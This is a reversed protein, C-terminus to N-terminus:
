DDFDSDNLINCYHLLEFIAVDIVSLMMLVSVLLVLRLITQIMVMSYGIYKQFRNVTMQKEESSSDNEKDCTNYVPSAVLICGICLLILARWRGASIKMDLLLVSFLATWLIKAQAFVAFEGAGIYDFNLFSLLNMVYYTLAVFGMKVSNKTLWVLKGLYQGEASSKETSSFIMFVCFLLKFLETFIIIEEAPVNEMRVAETRLVTYLVNCSCLSFLIQAKLVLSMTHPCSSVTSSTCPLILFKIIQERTTEFCLKNVCLVFAFKWVKLSSFLVCRFSIPFHFFVIIMVIRRM